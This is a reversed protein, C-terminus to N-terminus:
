VCQLYERVSVVSREFAGSMYDDILDPTLYRITEDVLEPVSEVLEQFEKTDAEGNKMHRRAASGFREWDPATEMMEIVVRHWQRLVDADIFGVDLGLDCRTVADVVHAVLETDHRRDRDLSFQLARDMINARLQGALPSRPGFHPRYVTNIWTEDMVLHTTYGAVFAATASSLQGADALAPNDKFFAGVGDQEGLNNLDFYHTRSREWRTIVRIDPATSGLYFGGVQSDLLGSQLRESVSRAMYIHLSLPPL